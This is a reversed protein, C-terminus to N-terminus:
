FRNSDQSFDNLVLTLLMNIIIHTHILIHSFFSQIMLIRTINLLYSHKREVISNQQPTNVHSTQHIIGKNIFFNTMFFEAGNDSRIV